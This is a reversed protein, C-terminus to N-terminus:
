RVDFLTLLKEGLAVRGTRQGLEQAREFDIGAVIQGVLIDLLGPVLQSSRGLSILFRRDRLILGFLETLHAARDLKLGDGVFREGQM